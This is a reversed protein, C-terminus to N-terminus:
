DWVTSVFTVGDDLVQNVTLAAIRGETTQACLIQGPRPEIGFTGESVIADLCGDADPPGEGTWRAIPHDATYLANGPPRRGDYFLDGDDLHGGAATVEVPPDADLDVGSDLRLLFPAAPPPAADEDGDETSADATAGPCGHQDAAFFCRVTAGYFWVLSALLAVVLLVLVVLRRARAWRGGPTPEPSTRPPTGPAPPIADSM